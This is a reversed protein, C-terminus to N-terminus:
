RYPRRWRYRGPMASPHSASLSGPRAYQAQLAPIWKAWDKEYTAEHKEVDEGTAKAYLVAAADVILERAQVPKLTPATTGDLSAPLTLSQYYPATGSFPQNDPMRIRNGEMLYDVGEVMPWDPIDAKVRYIAVKGVPYLDTYNTPLSSDTGFTYTYGSDSTTMQTPAIRNSDPAYVALRTFVDMQGQGLWLYCQADTCLGTTDPQRIQVRLRALCDASDFLAM